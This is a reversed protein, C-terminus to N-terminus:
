TRAVPAIQLFPPVVAGVHVNSAGILLREGRNLPVHVTRSMTNSGADKVLLQAVTTTTVNEEEDEVEKRLLIGGYSGVGHLMGGFSVGYVGKFPAIFKGGTTFNGGLDVVETHATLNTITTFSQTPSTVTATTFVVPATSNVCSSAQVARGLQGPFANFLSAM